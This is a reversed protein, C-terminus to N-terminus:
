FLVEFVGQFFLLSSRVSDFLFILNSSKYAIIKPFLITEGHNSGSLVFFVELVDLLQGVVLESWLKFLVHLFKSVLHKLFDFRLLKIASDQSALHEKLQAFSVRRRDVFTLNWRNLPGPSREAFVFIETSHFLCNFIILPSHIISRINVLLLRLTNLIRRKFLQILINHSHDQVLEFFVNKSALLLNSWTEGLNFFLDFGFVLDDLFM